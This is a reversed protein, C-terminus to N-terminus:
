KPAELRYEDIAYSDAKKFSSFPGIMDPSEYPHFYLGAPPGKQRARKHKYFIAGLHAGNIYIVKVASKRM